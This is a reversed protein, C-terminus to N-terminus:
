ESSEEEELVTKMPRDRLRQLYKIGVFLLNLVLKYAPIGAQIWTGIGTDMSILQETLNYLVTLPGFM